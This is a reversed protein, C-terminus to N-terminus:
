PFPRGLRRYRGGERVQEDLLVRVDGSVELVDGHVNSRRERSSEVVFRVRDNHVGVVGGEVFGGSIWGAM